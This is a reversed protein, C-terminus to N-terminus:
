NVFKSSSLHFNTLSFEHLEANQLKILSKGEVLCDQYCILCMIVHPIVM